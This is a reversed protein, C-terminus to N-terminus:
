SSHMMLQAYGLDSFTTQWRPCRELLSQQYPCTPTHMPQTLDTSLIKQGLESRHTLFNLGVWGVYTQNPQTSGM